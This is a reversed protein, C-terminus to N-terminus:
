ELGDLKKGCHPCYRGGEDIRGLHAGCHPCRWLQLYVALYAALPVISLLVVPVANLLMGAALVLLAAGILVWILKKVQKLTM